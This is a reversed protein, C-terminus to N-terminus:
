REVKELQIAGLDFPEDSREGEMPPVTFAHNNIRGADQEHFYLSLEYDGVPVDDIRFKGDSAVSASFSPSEERRKQYEETQKQWDKGDDTKMWEQWWKAREEQSTMEKPWEPAKPANGAGVHLSAFRWMPKETAGEAPVLQGVVPRGTGGFKIETMEGAQLDVNARMSSTVETAGTDVMHIIRRGLWGKGPYLREAVFKGEGDTTFHYSSFIRPGTNNFSDTRNPNFDLQVNAAPKSGVLYQGEMRAWPQLKIETPVPGDTSKVNAFGSDDVIVIEFAEDLEMFSIKGTTDLDLKPAYTQGERIRGNELMIQSGPRGLYAVAELAPEGNPRLITAEINKGKHLEVTVTVAGETPKVERSSAPKYGEAEIRVLHGDSPYDIRQVFKGDTVEFASNENWFVDNNGRASGPVVRFEEIPERTEADVVTGSIELPRNLKFVYEEPRAKLKQRPLQMGQRPSIDAVFEELPAENWEWVGNDDAYQNIHDFEFYQVHGNWEQLFIRARPSPKGDPDLVRVRLHGGPQMTITLPEMDAVVDVTELMTAKGAASVVVRTPKPQCANLVFQGGDDTTAERNVNSIQTRLRAGVIPKSAGDVVKGRISIGRSAKIEAHPEEDPDLEYVARSLTIWEPMLEPHGVEIRVEQDTDPVSASSWRGDADTTFEDGTGLQQNDGPRKQFEISPDIVAGAVPKGDEDVVVGGIRWAKGLRATFETPLSEPHDSADWRGIYPAYGPMSIIFQFQRPRGAIKFITGDEAALTKTAVNPYTRVQFKPDPVVEGAPGVVKVKIALRSAPGQTLGDPDSTPSPSVNCGEFGLKRAFERRGDVDEIWADFEERLSPAFRVRLWMAKRLKEGKEPLLYKELDPMFEDPFSKATRVVPLITVIADANALLHSLFTRVFFVQVRENGTIEENMGGTTKAASKGEALWKGWDFDDAHFTRSSKVNLYGAYYGVEECVRSLEELRKEVENFPHEESPGEICRFEVGATEDKPLESLKKQLEECTPLFRDIKEVDRFAAGNVFVCVKTSDSELLTRQLETTVPFLAFESGLEIGDVEKPETQASVFSSSVLGVLVCMAFRTM